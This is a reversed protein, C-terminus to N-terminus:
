LEVPFKESLLLIKEEEKKFEKIFWNVRQAWTPSESYVPGIAEVSYLKWKNLYNNRLGKGVTDIADAWDKFMIYGGGWGFPNYSGPWIFKGFTSELGAISPLLYCDLDYRQCTNVFNKEEGLLPSNYRELVNKIVIEKVKYIQNKEKNKDIKLSYSLQASSGSAINQAHVKKVFIFFIFGTIFILFIIKRM